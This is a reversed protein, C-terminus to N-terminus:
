HKCACRADTYSKATEKLNLWSIVEEKQNTCDYKLKMTFFPSFLTGDSIEASVPNSVASLEMRCFLKPIEAGVSRAKDSATRKASYAYNGIEEDAVFLKLDKMNEPYETYGYCAKIYEEIYLDANANASKLIKRKVEIKGSLMFTYVTQVTVWFGDSFTIKVPTLTLVVDDGSRVVSEIKTQYFCMDKKEERHIVYATTRSGDEFHHKVGTRYQSQIVYPYSNMMLFESDAGTFSSYRKNYPRLDGISGGQFTDVLTRMRPNCIWFYQKGSGFLIDKGVGIDSKGIPVNKKYYEAFESMTMDCIEGKDRLEAIYSLTERYLAYTIEDSDLINPNNHLWGPSVHIQYYSFGNNFYEQMRYQDVLNYDYEHIRGENALGRQINAPHSAFFDNRSEYGLVLDRSLHPLAVVGAWDSEDEAPKVSQNKSPYWPGWNMGESFLYWSNNCGHFVKVGEEFCGAPCVTVDPCYDKIMQILHSDLVYNGVARPSEGFVERYKDISYKVASLKEKESLLWVMTNPMDALPELWIGIEDGYSEYDAKAKDTIKKNDLLRSPVMITAKIGLGHSCERQFDYQELESARHILNFIM